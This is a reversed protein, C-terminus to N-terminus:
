DAAVTRNTLLRAFDEFPQPRAFLYGQGIDCGCARLIDAQATTEVGEAVVAMDLSHAMQVIAFVIKRSKEDHEIGSVFARDIKLKDVHLRMLNALNSYGTGFDDVAIEIGATAFTKLAQVLHENDGALVSETIEIELREAALGCAALIDLARQACGADFQLPSFNVAIRLGQATGDLRAGMTCATRLVWQGLAAVLGSEEAAAVLETPAPAAPQAPAALRLLVEVGVVAGDSLRVQPQWALALGAASLAKRLVDTVENRRALRAHMESAFFRFCGRGQQKADYMATDASMLLSEVSDGDEPYRAIGISAPLYFEREGCGFPQALATLLKEAVDAVDAADRVDEVVIAFEDGGLRAVTDNARVAGTLRRAAECLLRDGVAHGHCDNVDKFRDLDVFLVGIGTANRQARVVAQGLRDHLLRRNPLETLADHYALHVLQASLEKHTSIDAFVGVYYRASGDEDRVADIHLWEPYVEGSKRRNWIEGEWSGTADLAQWLAAYFAADHRGSRLIGPTRGVVEEEGYGTTRCFAANVLLIRGSADTVMIGEGTAQFVSAAIKRNELECRLNGILREREVNLEREREMLAGFLSLRSVVGGFAGDAAVVPLYDGRAEGFRQWLMEVPTDPALPVPQRRVILDAFVRAPFLAAERVDVLGLFRGAGEDGDFVAYVAADNEGPTAVDRHRQLAAVSRWRPCLCDIAALM